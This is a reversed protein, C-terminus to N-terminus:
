NFLNFINFLHIKNILFSLKKILNFVKIYFINSYDTSKQKQILYTM